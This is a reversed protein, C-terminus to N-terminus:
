NRAAARRLLEDLVADAQAQTAAQTGSNDIVFDARRAKEELPIQAALRARVAAENSGDRLQGRQLQQERRASVVIVPSLERDLGVEYLLPVEYGALREGQSELEAFRRRALARVRPHTIAELKRRELPDAFVIHALRDRRLAGTTDIVSPGFTAAIEALGDSGPAVVERALADADLM